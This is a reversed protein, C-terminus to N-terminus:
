LAEAGSSVRGPAPDLEFRGSASGHAWDEAKEVLAAEVPNMRIYQRKVEFDELNRITAEHFGSSWIQLKNELLRHIEHSSGGKVLQMAKELSTDGSPTLLLHLHNPMVVFEHLSYAGRARYEMISRILIEANRQVQFISRNQWTKTTVFYTCGPSTRHTLRGL